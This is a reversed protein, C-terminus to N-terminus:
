QEHAHTHLHPFPIKRRFKRGVSPMVIYPVHFIVSKIENIESIEYCSYIYINRYFCFRGIIIIQDMIDQQCMSIYFFDSSIRTAWILKHFSKRGEDMRHGAMSCSQHIIAHIVASIFFSCTLKNLYSIVDCLQGDSKSAQWISLFGGVLDLNVYFSFIKLIM